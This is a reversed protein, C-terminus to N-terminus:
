NLRYHWQNQDLTELLATSIAVKTKRSNLTLKVKDKTDYIDFALRKDGRFTKLQAEIRAVKALANDSEQGTNLVLDVSAQAIACALPNAM